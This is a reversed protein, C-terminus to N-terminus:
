YDSSIKELLIDVLKNIDQRLADLDIADKKESDPGPIATEDKDTQKRSPDKPQEKNQDPKGRPGAQFNTKPKDEESPQSLLVFNKLLTVIEIAQGPVTEFDPSWTVGTLPGFQHDFKTFFFGENGFNSDEIQPLRANTLLITWIQGLKEALAKPIAQRAIYLDNDDLVLQRSTMQEWITPSSEMYEVIVTDTEETPTAITVLWEEAPTSIMIVRAFPNGGDLSQDLMLYTFYFFYENLVSDPAGLAHFPIDLHESSFCKSPHLSLFFLFLVSLIITIPIKIKM